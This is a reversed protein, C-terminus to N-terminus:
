AAFGVVLRLQAEMGSIGFAGFPKSWLCEWILGSSETVLDFPRLDCPDSTLKSSYVIREGAVRNNSASPVTIVARVGTVVVASDPNPYSSIPDYPDETPAHTSRVITLLTTSFPISM